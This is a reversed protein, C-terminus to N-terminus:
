INSFDFIGGTKGGTSGGIASGVLSGVPGLLSGALGGLLSGIQANDAKKVADKCGKCDHGHGDPKPPPPMMPEMYPKHPASSSIFVNTITM